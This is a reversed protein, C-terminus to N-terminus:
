KKKREFNKNFWNRIGKIMILIVILSIIIILIIKWPLVWFTITIQDYVNEETETYARNMKITAKYRGFMFNRDLTYEKLRETEPMVFYPVIPIIGVQSGMLNTIKIQGFPSLDVNGSNEFRTSFNIPPKGYIKKDSSFDKLLGNENADGRVRVFFLSAIRSEITLNGASAGEPATPDPVEPTTKIMLAGYLGGPEATEPINIQIPITIRDGHQLTFETIEPTIYNKLSYPGVEGGLFDIIDTPNKAGIFDEISIKFSREKGFRNTISITKIASEGPNLWVETKGPGIMYDDYEPMNSLSELKYALASPVILNFLLIGGLLYSVIKRNRSKM